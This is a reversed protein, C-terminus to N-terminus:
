ASAGPYLIRHVGQSGGALHMGIEALYQDKREDTGPTHINEQYQMDRNKGNASLFRYKLYDDRDVGIAWNSYLNELMPHWELKVRGFPCIVTVVDVGYEKEVVKTQQKIKSFDNIAILANAGCYLVKENTGKAFLNKLFTNFFYTETCFSEGDAAGIFQSTNTIGMGGSTSDLFGSSARVYGGGTTVVGQIGFISMREIDNKFEETAKVRQNVWDNGGYNETAEQTGSMEVAKKLIQTYNIPFTGQTSLAQASATGEGFATGIVILTRAANTDATINGSPWRTVAVTASSVASTVRYVEGNSPNLLLDFQKTYIYDVAATLSETAGGGSIAASLAVTHPTLIDEQIEFKPNGTRLKNRKNAMYWQAVPTQYPKFNYIADFVERKILSSSVYDTTRMGRVMTPM